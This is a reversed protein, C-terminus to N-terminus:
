LFVSRHGYEPQKCPPIAVPCCRRGPLPDNLGSPTPKAATSSRREQETRNHTL